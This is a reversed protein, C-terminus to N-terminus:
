SGGVRGDHRSVLACLSEEEAAATEAPSRGPLV